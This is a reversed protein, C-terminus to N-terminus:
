IMKQQFIMQQEAMVQQVNFPLSVRSNTPISIFCDEFIYFPDERERISKEVIKHDKQPKRCVTLTGNHYIKVYNQDVTLRNVYITVPM